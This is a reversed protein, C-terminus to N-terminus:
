LGHPFPQRAEKQVRSLLPFTDAAQYWNFTEFNLKLFLMIATFNQM